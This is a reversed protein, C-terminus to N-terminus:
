NLSLLFDNLSKLQKNFDFEKKSVSICRESMKAYEEESLGKLRVINKELEKYDGPASTYGLEHQEIIKAGEGGGCFVIPLGLPLIDFIKSPVAGKIRVALPILSADYQSLVKAIESKDVFGHYFVNKDGQAIEREIDEVQNGGGYIHFEVSLKKFDINKIIGLIDQAVGLLGAYVIRLPKSQKTKPEAIEYMQLNRYLFKPTQPQFGATHELIENSQGIIASANAYNFKELACFAKHIKSGPVMAGIEVVSLPWLDSINLITTKNYLKRFLRIASSGVPLPPCQIIVRDYGKITKRKFAFLWMITAYSLMSLGRLVPNKSTSAYTWYRFVKSGKYEDKKYILGRYGEFIKGKPYNPLATLVDVEHGLSKLGDVMNTIRSPAAGLEPYFYFSVLLIKM